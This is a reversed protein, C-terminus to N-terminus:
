GPDKDYSGIINKTLMDSLIDKLVRCAIFSSGANELFVCVAWQPRDLYGVFWGHSNAGAVQATGTKGSIKLEEM